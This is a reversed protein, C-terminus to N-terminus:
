LPSDNKELYYKTTENIGDNFNFSPTWNLIESAKSVDLHYNMLEFQRYPITGINLLHEKNLKSAIHIAVDKLKVSQSAGINIIEGNCQDNNLTLEIANILDMVFIFNRYQDGPTMDFLKNKILSEILAPIFMEVGQGPGYAISPRLIVVPLGYLKYFIRGIISASLKSLGYASSPDTKGDETYINKLNGYEEATGMLVIRKLNKIEDAANLINLTGFYNISMSIEFETRTNIRNKLGALHIIYDPSYKLLVRRLFKNDQISGIHYDVKEGYNTIFDAGYNKDICILKSNSMLLRSILHKGIFGSAGTILIRTKSYSKGKLLSGKYKTQNM